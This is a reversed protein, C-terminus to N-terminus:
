ACYAWLLYCTLIYVLRLHLINGCHELNLHLDEANQRRTTNRYSVLTESPRSADMKLVFHTPWPWTVNRSVTVWHTRRPKSGWHLRVRVTRPHGRQRGLKLWKYSVPKMMVHGAKTV